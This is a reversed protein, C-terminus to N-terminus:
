FYMNLLILVDIITSLNNNGSNIKREVLNSIKGYFNIYANIISEENGNEVDSKLENKYVAISDEIEPVSDGSIGLVKLLNETQHESYSIFANELESESNLDELNNELEDGFYIVKNILSPDADLMQFEYQVAINLIRARIESSRKVFDFSLGSDIGEISKLLVRVSAELVKSYTVPQLGAKIYTDSISNLYNNVAIKKASESDAFYLDRDLAVQATIGANLIQNWQSPTGGIEPRLFTNREADLESKIIGAITNILDNHNNLNSAIEENIMIAIRNYEFSSDAPFILKYLDASVTTVMNLPQLYVAIGSKVQSTVIGSLELNDKSAKVLLNRVGDLNTELVFKGRSDTVADKVSVTEEDGNTKFRVLRVSVNGPDTLNITGSASGDSIKGVVKATVIEPEQIDDANCGIINVIFFLVILARCVKDILYKKKRGDYKCM